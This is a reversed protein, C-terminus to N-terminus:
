RADTVLGLVNGLGLVKARAILAEPAGSWLTARRTSRRERVFAALV